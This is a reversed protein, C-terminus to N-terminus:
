NWVGLEEFGGGLAVMMLVAGVIQKGRFRPDMKRGIMWLFVVAMVGRSAM